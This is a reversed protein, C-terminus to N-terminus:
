QYEFCLRAAPAALVAPAGTSSGNGGNGGIDKIKFIGKSGAKSGYKLSSSYLNGTRM